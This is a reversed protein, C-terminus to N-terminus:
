RINRKRGKSGRDAFCSIRKERKERLKVMKKNETLLQLPMYYDLEKDVTRRHQDLGVKGMLIDGLIVMSLLNDVVGFYERRRMCNDFSDKRLIGM